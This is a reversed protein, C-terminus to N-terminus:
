AAVSAEHIRVSGNERLVLVPSSVSRVVEEAVSGHILHSFGTRGHTGMVVLDGGYAIVAKGINDAIAGVRVETIVRGAVDFLRALAALAARAEACERSLADMSVTRSPEVVHILYVHAHLRRALACGYRAAHESAPSFDVPIVIKRITVDM